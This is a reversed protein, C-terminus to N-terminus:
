RYFLFNERPSVTPTLATARQAYFSVILPRHKSHPENFLPNPQFKITYM